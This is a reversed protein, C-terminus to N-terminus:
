LNFGLLEIHALKSDDSFDLIIDAGISDLFKCGEDSLSITKKISASSLPVSTAGNEFDYTINIQKNNMIAIIHDSNLVLTILSLAYSTLIM